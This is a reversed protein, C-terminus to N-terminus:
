LGYAVGRKAGRPLDALEEDGLLLVAGRVGPVSGPPSRLYIRSESASQSRSHNIIPPDHKTADTSSAGRPGGARPSPRAPALAAKLFTDIYRTGLESVRALKPGHFRKQLRMHLRVTSQHRAVPAGRGARPADRRPTTCALTPCIRKFQLPLPVDSRDSASCGVRHLAAPGTRPRRARPAFVSSLSPLFDVVPPRM